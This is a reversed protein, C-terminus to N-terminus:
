DYRWNWRRSTWFVSSHSKISSMYGTINRTPLQIGSYVVSSSFPELSSRFNFCKPTFPLKNLLYRLLSLSKMTALPDLDGQQAGSVVMQVFNLSVFSWINILTCLPVDVTSSVLEQINNSTLILEKLNPLAQEMNEGIRSCYALCFCWANYPLLSLDERSQLCM